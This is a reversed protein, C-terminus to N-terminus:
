LIFTFILACTAGASVGALFIAAVMLPDGVIIIVSSVARHVTKKPKSARRQVPRFLLFSTIGKSIIYEQPANTMIVSESFPLASIEQVVPAVDFTFLNGVAFM